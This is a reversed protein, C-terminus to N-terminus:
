CGGSPNDTVVNIEVCSTNKAINYLGNNQVGFMDATIHYCALPMFIAKKCIECFFTHHGDGHFELVCAANYIHGCDTLYFMDEVNGQLKKHPSEPIPIATKKESVSEPALKASLKKEMEKPTLDCHTCKKAKNLIYFSNLNDLAAIEKRLGTKKIVSLYKTELLKDLDKADFVVSMHRKTKAPFSLLTEEDKDRILFSTTDESEWLDDHMWKPVAVTVKKLGPWRKILCGMFSRLYSSTFFLLDNDEVDPLFTVTVSESINDTISWKVMEMDMQFKKNPNEYIDCVSTILLFQERQIYPMARYLNTSLILKDPGLAFFFSDPIYIRRRAFIRVTKAKLKMNVPLINWGKADNLSFVDSPTKQMIFLDEIQNNVRLERFSLLVLPDSTIVRLVSLNHFSCIKFLNLMLGTPVCYFDLNRLHPFDIRKEAHKEALFNGFPTCKPKEKNRTRRNPNTGESGGSDLIIQPVKHLSFFELLKLLDDFAKDESLSFLMHGIEIKVGEEFNRTNKLNGLFTDLKSLMGNIVLPKKQIWFSAERKATYQNPPVISKIQNPALATKKKPELMIINKRAEANTCCASVWMSLLVLLLNVKKRMTNEKENM